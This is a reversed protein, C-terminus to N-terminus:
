RGRVVRVGGRRRGGRRRRGGGRVRVRVDRSLVEFSARRSYTIGAPSPHAPSSKCLSEGVAFHRGASWALVDSAVDWGPDGGVVHHVPAAAAAPAAGAVHQHM